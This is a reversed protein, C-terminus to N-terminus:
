ETGRGAWWGMQACNRAIIMTNAPSKLNNMSMVILLRGACLCLFGGDPSAQSLTGPLFISCLLPMCFAHCSTQQFVILLILSRSCSTVRCLELKTSFLLRYFRFACHYNIHRCHYLGTLGGGYTNVLLVHVLSLEPTFGLPFPM